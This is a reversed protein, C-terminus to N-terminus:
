NGDPGFHASGITYAVHRARCPTPARWGGGTRLVRLAAVPRHLVERADVECWPLRQLDEAKHEDVRHTAFIELGAVLVDHRYFRMDFRRRAEAAVVRWPAEVQAELGAPLRLQQADEGCGPCPEWVTICEGANYRECLDHKAAAHLAGERSSM